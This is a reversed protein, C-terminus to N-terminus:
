FSGLLKFAQSRKPLKLKGINYDLIKHILKALIAGSFLHNNCFNKLLELGLRFISYELRYEKDLGDVTSLHKKTISKIKTHIFMGLKCCCLYAISVLLLLNSLRHLNTIHTDELNFGFSKLKAFMSEIFWRRKYEQFPNDSHHNSIICILEGKYNIKISVFLRHGFTRRIDKGIITQPNKKNLDKCLEAMTITKSGDSVLTSAKARSFFKIINKTIFGKFHQALLVSNLTFTKFLFNYEQKIKNYQNTFIMPYIRVSNNELIEALILETGTDIITLPQELNIFDKISSFAIDITAAIKNYKDLKCLSYLKNAHYSGLVIYESCTREDIILYNMFQYSPFERDAYVCSIMNSGFIEIIWKILSIRQQNNSSGGKNDLMIWYLPIAIDNWIVSAVFYNIDSQGDQWNTRDIILELHSLYLIDFVLAKAYVELDIGPNDLMRRSNQELSIMKFTKSNQNHRALSSLKVDNNQILGIIASALRNAKLKRNKIKSQSTEFLKNITMFIKSTIHKNM